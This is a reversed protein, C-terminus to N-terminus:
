ESLKISIDDIYYEIGADPGEIYVYTSVENGIVSHTYSGTLQIWEGDTATVSNVGVYHDGEDDTLKITLGVNASSANALKVWASVTYTEDVTLLGDMGHAIGNWGGTRDAAKASNNGSHAQTKELTVSTSGHGFWHETGLEFDPNLLINNSIPEPTEPIDPNVNAELADAFGQLAPKPTYDDNFMLPWDVSDWFDILWSDADILGWVSVGGRQAAPVTELYASVVDFYRKKQLEAIEPTFASGNAENMRLDLETIKVKLGLDVVKQLQKSFTAKDPGDASIHMQFGIGNIPIDRAQFDAAMAVAADLKADNWSINYDNYYLDVDADAARAAIFAKEIFSEGINKYWVSDDGDASGRYSGDENFAENVVDWTELQGSYRTAIQTVHNEMMAVWATSDGDFDRIWDPIQSHWVLVHGHVTLENNAAFSLLEDAHIFNFSDESPHMADMKMINEATLESFHQVVLDQREPSSLLSNGANGAPVAVGIPFDALAKLSTVTVESYEYVPELISYEGNPFEIPKPSESEGCATLLSMFVVITASRILSKKM